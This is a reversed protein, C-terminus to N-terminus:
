KSTNSVVGYSKFKLLNKFLWNRTTPTAIATVSLTSISIIILYIITKIQSIQGVILLRGLGAVIVSAMLPSFVDQWYWRWKENPLLRRHMFHISVLVYGSNLILWLIAGGLAGYLRALYVMLPVLCIISILNTYFALKTWGNAYQLAGPINMMGNLATGCVLISVLLHTKEATVPNQTWILMIEYSYTAVVVTVPLILVSMFQCSKHYLQKLGDHDALSVLKTFRPYIASYVPVIIRYLSMAVVGSLTYYGFMELTLIKSLIIKDLQTLIASLIAIGSMGATFHFIGLLLRKQFLSRKQTHPLRNWLFLGLLCTNIIGIIIQWLFFAEITPSILWLILIAGLGRLTSVGINIKSLLVQKELGILGASYFSAPMQIAMVFGMLILAQEITQLSLNEAHLWQYSIFPSIAIISIGIFFALFWYIIELSRVLNRMEQERGPLVSLRAMERNVTASLGLDFLVFMGQLTAFIGILGYSEVGILKVYMPVFALSMLGQWISSIFNALINKKMLTM